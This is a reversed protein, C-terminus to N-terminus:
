PKPKNKVPEEIAVVRGNQFEARLLTIEREQLVNIWASGGVSRSGAPGYLNLGDINAHQREYSQITDIYLWIEREGEATRRLLTRQPEGLAIRTMDATFGLDIEGGRIRAQTAVPLTDFLAQNKQIRNAPSSCGALLFLLLLAFGASRLSTM